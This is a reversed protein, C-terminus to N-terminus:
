TDVEFYQICTGIKFDGDSTQRSEEVTCTCQVCGIMHDIMKGENHLNFGHNTLDHSDGTGTASRM